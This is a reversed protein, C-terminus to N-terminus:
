QWSQWEPLKLIRDIEEILRERPERADDWVPSGAVIEKATGLSVREVNWVCRISDIISAGKERLTALATDRATGQALLERFMSEYDPM